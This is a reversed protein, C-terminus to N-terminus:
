AEGGALRACLEVLGWTSAFFIMTLAIYLLDM